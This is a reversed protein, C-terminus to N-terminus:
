SFYYNHPLYNRLGQSTVINVVSVIGFEVSYFITMGLRIYVDSDKLVLTIMFGIALVCKAVFSYFQGLFTIVNRKNRRKIVEEGLLKKNLMGQNHAYFHSFFIGYIAIEVIRLILPIALSIIPIMDSPPSSKGTLFSYNYEIDRFSDSRGICWNWLVQKKSGAGNGMGYGIATILPLGLSISLVSYFMCLRNNNVAMWNSCKILLLRYIAVVLSGYALHAQAYVVTYWLTHCGAEEFHNSLTIDFILCALILVMLYFCAFHQIIAQLILLVSIPNFDKNWILLEKRHDYMYHYLPYVFYSGVVFSGLLSGIVVIKENYNLGDIVNLELNSKQIILTEFANEFYIPLTKNSNQLISKTM